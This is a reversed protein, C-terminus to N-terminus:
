FNYAVGLTYINAETSVSHSATGMNTIREYELRGSFKSNFDYQLGVGFAPSWTNDTFGTDKIQLRMYYVGVRGLLSFDKGLPAKGVLAVGWGAMEVVSSAFPVGGLIQSVSYSGLNIYTGELSFDKHFQYGGYAKWATDSSDYSGGVIVSNSRDFNPRSQGTSGGIYFTNDAAFAMGCSAASIAIALAGIRTKKSM